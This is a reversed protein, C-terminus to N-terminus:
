FVFGYKVGLYFKPVISEKADLYYTKNPNNANFSQNENIKVRKESYFDVGGGIYFDLFMNDWYYFENEGFILRIENHNRQETFNYITPDTTYTFLNPDFIPFDNRISIDLDFDRKHYYIAFYVGDLAYGSPFFRLGLSYSINPKIKETYNELFLPIDNNGIDEFIAGMYDKFTLGISAEASLHKNLVREYYIPLEGRLFLLPNIKIANKFQSVNDKKKDTTENLDSKDFVIVNTTITDQGNTLISILFFCFSILNKYFKM